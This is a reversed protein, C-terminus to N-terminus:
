NLRSTLFRYMIGEEKHLDVYCPPVLLSLLYTMLLTILVRSAIGVSKSLGRPRWAHPVRIDLGSGRM